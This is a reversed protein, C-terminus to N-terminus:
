GQLKAKSLIKRIEKKVDAVTRGDVFKLESTEASDGIFFRASFKPLHTARDREVYKGIRVGMYVEEPDDGRFAYGTLVGPGFLGLNSEEIRIKLDTLSNEDTYWVKEGELFWTFHAAYKPSGDKSKHELLDIFRYKEVKKYDKLNPDPM